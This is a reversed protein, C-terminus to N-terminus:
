WGQTALGCRRGVYFHQKPREVYEIGQLGAEECFAVFEKGFWASHVIARAALRGRLTSLQERTHTADNVTDHLFLEIPRDFSRLAQVSDGVLRQVLGGEDGELFEGRDAATDVTVIVAGAGGTGAHVLARAMALTSLGRDTGAEFIVRAGSARVLLYNVLCRGFRLQPDCIYRLRTQTVRQRYREAFVKDNRLEEAYSRLTAPRCGTLMSIAAVIAALGEPEYDYSFNTWERSQVLLRLAVGWRAPPAHLMARARLPLTAWRGLASYKIREVYSPKM